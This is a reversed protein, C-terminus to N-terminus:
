GEKQIVAPRMITVSTNSGVVHPESENLCQPLTGNLAIFETGAVNVSSYVVMLISETTLISIVLVELLDLRQYKEKFPTFFYKKGM